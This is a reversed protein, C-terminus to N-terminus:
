WFWKLCSAPLCARVLRQRVQFRIAPQMAFSVPADPTAVWIRMLQSVNARWEAGGEDVADEHLGGEAQGADRPASSGGLPVPALGGPPASGLGTPVDLLLPLDHSLIVRAGASGAGLQGPLGGLGPTGSVQMGRAPSAMHKAALIFRRGDRSEYEFGVHLVAGAAGQGDPGAASEGSPKRPGRVPGKASAGAKAAAAPLRAESVASRPLAGVRVGSGTLARPLQDQAAATPWDQVRLRSEGAGELSGEAATGSGGVEAASVFGSVADPQASGAGHLAEVRLALEAGLRLQGISSAAGAAPQQESRLGGAAEQDPALMAGSKAAARGRRAARRSQTPVKPAQAAAAGLAPFNAEDLSVGDGGGSDLAEPSAEPPIEAIGPRGSGPTQKAADHECEVEGAAVEGGLAPQTDAQPDAMALPLAHLHRAGQVFGEYPLSAAADCGADLLSVTVWSAMPTAAPSQSVTGGGSGSGPEPTAQSTQVAGAAARGPQARPLPPLQVQLRGPLPAAGAAAAAAPPASAHAASAGPAHGLRRVLLPLRVRSGPGEGPAAHACAATGDLSFPDDRWRRRLRRTLCVGFQAAHRAGRPSCAQLRSM